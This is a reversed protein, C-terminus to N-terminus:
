VPVVQVVGQLLADPSAWITLHGLRTLTREVRAGAPIRLQAIFAGLRPVDRALGRAQEESEFVSIGRWLEEFSPDALPRGLAENSLFDTRKPPNTRVIRFVHASPVRM